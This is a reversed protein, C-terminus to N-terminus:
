PGFVMNYANTLDSRLAKGYLNSTATPFYGANLKGSYILAFVLALVLLLSTYSNKFLLFTFFDAAAPGAGGVDVRLNLPQAKSQLFTRVWVFRQSTDRMALLDLKDRTRLRLTAALQFSVEEMACSTPRLPLRPLDGYKQRFVAKASAGVRDLIQLMTTMALNAQSTCKAMSEGTKYGDKYVRGGVVTTCGDRARSQADLNSSSLFSLPSDFFPRIDAVAVLAQRGGMVHRITAAGAMKPRRELLLKEVRRNDISVRAVCSCFCTHIEAAEFASGSGHLQSQSPAESNATRPENRDHATEVHNGGYERSEANEGNEGNEGSERNEEYESDAPNVDHDLDDGAAGVAESDRTLLSRPARLASPPFSPVPPSASPRQFFLRASELFPAERRPPRGLRTVESHLIQCLLIITSESGSERDQKDGGKSELSIGPDRAEKGGNEDKEDKQDKEEKEAPGSKSAHSFPHTRLSDPTHTPSTSPHPLSVTDSCPFALLFLLSSPRARFRLRLSEGPFVAFKTDPAAFAEICAKQSSGECAGSGKLGEQEEDEVEGEEEEEENRQREEERSQRSSPTTRRTDPDMQPTRLAPTTDLLLRFDRDRNKLALRDLDRHAELLERERNALALPYLRELLKQVIRNEHVEKHSQLPARCLPCEDKVNLADTLCLLCFTHGCSTSTAQYFLKMCIPCELESALLGENRSEDSGSGKLRKEATGRVTGDVTGVTTAVETTAVETTAFETSAVETSAVETATDLRATDVDTDTDTHEADPESQNGILNLVM